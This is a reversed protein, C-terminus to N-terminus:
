EHSAILQDTLHHLCNNNPKECIHIWFQMRHTSTFIVNIM